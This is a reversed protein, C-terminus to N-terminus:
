SSSLSYAYFLYPWMSCFLFINVGTFTMRNTSDGSEMFYLDFQDIMPTIKFATLVDTDDEHLDTPLLFLYIYNNDLSISHYSLFVKSHVYNLNLILLDIRFFTEECYKNMCHKLSFNRIFM